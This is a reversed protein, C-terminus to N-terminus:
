ESEYADELGPAGHETLDEAEFGPAEHEILDEAEDPPPDMRRRLEAMGLDLAMRLVFSRGVGGGAMRASAGFRAGVAPVLRDAVACLARPIVLSIQMQDPANRSPRPVANVRRTSRSM